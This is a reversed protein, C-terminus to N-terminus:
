RNASPGPLDPCLTAINNCAQIGPNEWRNASPTAKGPSSAKQEMRLARRQGHSSIDM